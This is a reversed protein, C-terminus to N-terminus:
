VSINVDTESFYQNRKKIIYKLLFVLNIMLVAIFLVFMFNFSMSFLSLIVTVLFYAFSSFLIWVFSHYALIKRLLLFIGTILLWIGLVVGILHFEPRFSFELYRFAQNGQLQVISDVIYFVGLLSLLYSLVKM